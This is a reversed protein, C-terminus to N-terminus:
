LKQVGQKWFIAQQVETQAGRLSQIKRRKRKKELLPPPATISPSVKRLEKQHGRACKAMKLDKKKLDFQFYHEILKSDTSRM